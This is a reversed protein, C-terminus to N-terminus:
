RGAARLLIAEVRDAYADAGFREAARARAAPGMEAGRDLVELVAAALAAPDGPAVLRGTVGDAVTEPLGDVHTAVVPVGAAMAEALVTGFPEQRSPAVLVDLHAMVAAGDAVWPVHEVGPAARVRELYARDTAYPDDGVLIVRADPRRERILPAAQVLDLPGKRPELRGVFGVVPGAPDAAWPIPAPVVDLEVPCHVVEASLGPLRRAVADSDALVADARRWFGPARQVMDHVHLVTRRGRLAPLLRGTVTGNLYVLDADRSLRRARPWAAVARAGAGRGLGGVALRTVPFGAEDLPGAAPTALTLAHGRDVLRRGLRLLGIEAGGPYAVACVALIRVAPM